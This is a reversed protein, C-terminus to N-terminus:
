EHDYHRIGNGDTYYLKAYGILNNKWRDQGKLFFGKKEERSGLNLSLFTLTGDSLMVGLAIQVTMLPLIINTAANALYGVGQGIFIQDVMSYIANVVM